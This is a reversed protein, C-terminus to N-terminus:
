GLAETMKKLWGKENADLYPAISDYVLRHYDNIWSIEHYSLLKIDILTRDFHCLTLSRFKLYKGFPTEEKEECIILNECRIGYQGPRYLAPEDSLLMGPEIPYASTKGAGPGIGAPGEHVNLCFGVGHGTSHGYNLGKNWLFQRALIDLQNGKTGAPFVANALSIMGKLVLTFDSIQSQTPTGTAITRTIDTTGEFYQGGSDILLIGDGTIRVDSETDATYHPLAGHTNFAVIPAFSPGLYNEGEKRFKELRDAVTTETLTAADDSNYLWYFFKELAVGDKVMAKEICRIETVNKIAKLASPISIDEIVRMRAPLSRYLSYSVTSPDLIISKRGTLTSLVAATEEYPLVVVGMKDFEIALPFPIKQEDVFLLVQDHGIIAYSLLLPSFEVDAGRINLLWMIDDPSTLLQYDAGAATMRDRVLRIKEARTNGTYEPKLEFAKSVPLAPRDVFVSAIVDSEFDIIIKKKKLEDSIKRCSDTPFLSDDMAIKMGATIETMLWERYSKASGASVGSLSVGTDKLQTMAQLYYRSDTWLGAFDSTVIVTANSGTFGTLWKIIKWHDPVYEGLHPDTSPIVVADLKQESMKTRLLQLREFYINM